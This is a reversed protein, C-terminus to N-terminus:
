KPVSARPKYLGRMNVVVVTVVLYLYGFRFSYCLFVFYRSVDGGSKSAQISTIEFRGHQLRRLAAKGFQGTLPDVKSLKHTAVVAQAVSLTRTAVVSQELTKHGSIAPVRM